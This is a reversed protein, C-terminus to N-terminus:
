FIIVAIDRKNNLLVSFKKYCERKHWYEKAKREQVSKHIIMESSHFYTICNKLEKILTGNKESFNEQENIYLVKLYGSLYKNRFVKLIEYVTV